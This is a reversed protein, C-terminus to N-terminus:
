DWAHCTHCTHCSGSLSLARMCVHCSHIRSTVCILCTTCKSWGIASGSEYTFSDHWMHSHLMDGVHMVCTTSTMFDCYECMCRVWVYLVWVYMVCFFSAHWVFSRTVDFLPLVFSIPHSWVGNRQFVQKMHSHTMDCMHILWTVCIFSAHWVYSHALSCARIHWRVRIFSAHGVYVYAHSIGHWVYSRTVDCKHVLCTVRVCTFSRHCTFPVHQTYTHLWGRWSLPCMSPVGDRRKQTAMGQILSREQTYCDGRPIVACVHFVM